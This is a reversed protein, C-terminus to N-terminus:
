SDRWLRGVTATSYGLERVVESRSMGRAKLEQVLRKKERAGAVRPPELRSPEDPMQEDALGLEELALIASHLVERPSRKQDAAIVMAFFATAEISLAAALEITTDVTASTKLSELQSIHSQTVGGAISHQFFGQRVRLFQLVAAFPRRLSM